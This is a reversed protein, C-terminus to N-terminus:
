CVNARLDGECALNALLTVVDGLLVAAIRRITKLQLLEAGLAVLGGRM